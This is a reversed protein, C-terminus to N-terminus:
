YSISFLSSPILLNISAIWLAPPQHSGTPSMYQFVKRFQSASVPTPQAPTAATILGHPSRIFILLTTGRIKGDRPAARKKLRCFTYSETSMLFGRSGSDGSARRLVPNRIKDSLKPPVAICTRRGKYFPRNQQLFFVVRQARPEPFSVAILLFYLRRRYFIHLNASRMVVFSAMYISLLLKACVFHFQLYWM